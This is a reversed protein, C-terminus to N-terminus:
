ALSLLRDEHYFGYRSDRWRGNGCITNGLGYIGMYTTHAFSAGECGGLLVVRCFSDTEWCTRHEQGGKEYGFRRRSAREEWTWFAKGSSGSYGGRYKRTNKRVLFINGRM